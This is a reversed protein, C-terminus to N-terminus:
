WGWCSREEEEPIGGFAHVKSDVKVYGQSWLQIECQPSFVSRLFLQLCIEIYERLPLFRASTSFTPKAFLWSENLHILSLSPSLSRSICCKSSIKPSLTFSNIFQKLKLNIMLNAGQLIGWFRRSKKMKAASRRFDEAQNIELSNYNTKSKLVFHTEDELFIQDICDVCKNTM